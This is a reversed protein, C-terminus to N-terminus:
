RERRAIGAVTQGWPDQMRRKEIKLEVVEAREQLATVHKQVEELSADHLRAEVKGV